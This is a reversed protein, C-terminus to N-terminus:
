GAPNRESLDIRAIGKELDLLPDGPSPAPAPLETQREQEQLAEQRNPAFLGDIPGLLTGSTRRWDKDTRFNMFGFIQGFISVVIVVGIVAIIVVWEVPM